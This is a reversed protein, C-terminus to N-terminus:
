LGYFFAGEAGDGPWSMAIVRDTIYSLDLDFDDKQFRKKHQSVLGACCQLGDSREKARRAGVDAASVENQLCKTNLSSSCYMSRILSAM